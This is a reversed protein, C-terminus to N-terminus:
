RGTSPWRRRNWPATASQNFCQLLSHTFFIASWYATRKNIAAPRPYQRPCPASVAAGCGGERGQRRWQRRRSRHRLGRRFKTAMCNAFTKQRQRPPGAGWAASPPSKKRRPMTSSSPRLVASARATTSSWACACASPWVPMLPMAAAGCSTTAPSRRWRMAPRLRARRAACSRVCRAADGWTTRTTSTINLNAAPRMASRLTITWHLPTPLM